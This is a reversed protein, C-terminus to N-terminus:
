SVVEFSEVKDVRFSRWGKAKVDFVRLTDEYGKGEPETGKPRMEEPIRDIVRTCTMDRTEGNVKTFKVQCLHTALQTFMEDKTMM